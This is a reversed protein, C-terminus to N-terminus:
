ISKRIIFGYWTIGNCNHDISVDGQVAQAVQIFMNSSVDDCDRGRWSGGRLTTEKGFKDHDLDVMPLHKNFINDIIKCIEKIGPFDCIKSKSLHYDILPHRQRLNLAREPVSLISNKPYIRCQPQGATDHCLKLAHCIVDPNDGKIFGDIIFPGLFVDYKQGDKNMSIIM